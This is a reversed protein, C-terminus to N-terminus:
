RTGGSPRVLISILQNNKSAYELHKKIGLNCQFHIASSIVQVHIAILSSSRHFGKKKLGWCSSPVTTTWTPPFTPNTTRM